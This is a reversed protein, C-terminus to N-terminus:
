IQGHANKCSSGFPTSTHRHYGKISYIRKVHNMSNLSTKWICHLNPCKTKGDFVVATIENCYLMGLPRRISILENRINELNNSVKTAEMFSATKPQFENQVSSVKTCITKISVVSVIFCVCLGEQIEMNTRDVKDVHVTLNAWYKHAFVWSCM